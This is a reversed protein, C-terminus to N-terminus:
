TLMFPHGYTEMLIYGMIKLLGTFFYQSNKTPFPLYVYLAVEPLCQITTAASGANCSPRQM